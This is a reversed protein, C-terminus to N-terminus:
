PAANMTTAGNDMSDRHRSDPTQGALARHLNVVGAPHFSLFGSGALNGPLLNAGRRTGRWRFSKLVTLLSTLNDAIGAQSM